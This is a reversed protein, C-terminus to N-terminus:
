SKEQVYSNDQTSYKACRLPFSEKQLACTYYTAMVQFHICSSCQLHHSSRQRPYSILPKIVCEELM